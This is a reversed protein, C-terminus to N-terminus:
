IHQSLGFVSLIDSYSKVNQDNLDDVHINSDGALTVPRTGLPVLTLLKSFDRFFLAVPTSPLRYNVIILPLKPNSPRVVLSEFTSGHPM